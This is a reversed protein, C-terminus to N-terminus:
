IMAQLDSRLRAGEEFVRALVFLLLVALWGGLSPDGDGDMPFGLAELRHILAAMGFHLLQIMLFCWAVTRLRQANEPVFPDGHRVTEVMDLFRTLLVHVAALMPAGVIVMGRLLPLVMELEAGSLKSRYYDEFRAEFPFSAALLVFFLAGAVINLVILIKLFIRSLGLAASQTGSM